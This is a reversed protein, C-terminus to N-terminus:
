ACEQTLDVHQAISSSDRLRQGLAIMSNGLQLLLHDSWKPRSGKIQIEARTAEILRSHYEHAFNHDRENM